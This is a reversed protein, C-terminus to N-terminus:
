NKGILLLTGADEFRIEGNQVNSVSGSYYDKVREGDAFMGYTGVTQTAPTPSLGMVVLVQDSIGNQDYERKFVYPESQLETHAGAGVAVHEKRFSGLKQWHALVEATSPKTEIDSWNM